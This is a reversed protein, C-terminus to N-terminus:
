HSRDIFIVARSNNGHVSNFLLALKNFWRREERMNSNQRHISGLKVKCKLGM